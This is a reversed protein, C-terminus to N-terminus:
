SNIELKKIKKHLYTRPIDLVEATRTVNWNCSVLKEIIFAKEFEERAEKLTCDKNMDPRSVPHCSLISSIDKPRIENGEVLVMLKEIFNKLERVNGPWQYQVLKDLAQSQIKKRVVGHEHCYRQFFHDVLLPIDEKRERLSPVQINLVNLRFYLDERFKEEQMERTLDKNTAAIVRVDTQISESGGIREFIGEELVRLVKAQTMLSMDGVEDLFLTGGDASQFRGKKDTIAGTFAGKKYGFLESEILTDPIAACNVAVFPQGARSSNIYIARAVLEKGTGNEGEILVKSETAAAKVILEKIQQMAQCEGVMIYHEMVSELLHAKERVLQSKELANKVTVLVRESDLPKELFDYAGIRAAEVAVHITGEGSIMVVQLPPVRERAKELIQIGSMDPLKLDLLVLDFLTDKVMPLAQKGTYATETGYGEYELINVLIESLSRDDDVILIKSRKSTM